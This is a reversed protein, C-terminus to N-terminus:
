PTQRQLAADPRGVQQAEGLASPDGAKWADVVARGRDTLDIRFGSFQPQFGCSGSKPIEAGVAVLGSSILDNFHLVGDPSYFLPRKELSLYLLNDIARRDFGQNLAVLMGKWVRISEQNITGRHHLAHCTPCLAILNSPDNNGDDAVPIIHHLDIALITRCTPVACRYGAETLVQIRVSNSISTRYNM